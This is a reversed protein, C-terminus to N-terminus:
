WHVDADRAVAVDKSAGLDGESVHEPILLEIEEGGGDLLVARERQRPHVQGAPELVRKLAERLGREKVALKPPKEVIRRRRREEAPVLRDRGPRHLAAAREAAIGEIAVAPDLDGTPEHLDVLLIRIRAQLLGSLLELLCIEALLYEAVARQQRK